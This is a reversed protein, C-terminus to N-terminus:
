QKIINEKFSQGKIINEVLVTKGDDPIWVVAYPYTIAQFVLDGPEPKLFEFKIVWKDPYMAVDRIRVQYGGTNQEGMAILFVRYNGFIKEYTGAKLKNKNAWERVAEKMRPPFNPPLDKDGTGVFATNANQGESEMIKEYYICVSELWSARDGVVVMKIQDTTQNSYKNSYKNLLVKQVFKEGESVPVQQYIAPQYGRAKVFITYLGYPRQPYCEESTKGQTKETAGSAAPTKVAFFKTEGNKDTYDIEGTEIISVLAGSIPNETDEEVVEIKVLGEPYQEPVTVLNQLEQIKDADTAAAGVQITLILVVLALTIIVIKNKWPLM